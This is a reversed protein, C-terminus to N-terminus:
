NWGLRKGNEAKVRCARDGFDVPGISWYQFIALEGIVFFTPVWSREPLMDKIDEESEPVTEQADFRPAGRVHLRIARRL